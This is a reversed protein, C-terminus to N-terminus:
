QVGGTTRYWNILYDLVRARQPHSLESLLERCRKIVALDDKIPTVPKNEVSALKASQELQEISRPPQAVSAQFEPATELDSM